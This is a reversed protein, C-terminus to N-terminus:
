IVALFKPERYITLDKRNRVTVTQGSSFSLHCKMVASPNYTIKFRNSHSRVGRAFRVLIEKVFDLVFDGRPSCARETRKNALKM